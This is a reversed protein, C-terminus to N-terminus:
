FLFKKSQVIVGQKLVDAPLTSEVQKLRNQVNVAAINPDTGINFTVTLNYSGDDNSTSSMYLMNEVGNVVSKQRVGEACFYLEYQPHTHSFLMHNPNTWHSLMIENGADALFYM